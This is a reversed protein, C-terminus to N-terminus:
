RLPDPRPAPAPQEVKYTPNCAPCLDFKVIVEDDDRPYRKDMHVTARCWQKGYVTSEPLAGASKAPASVGCRDCKVEFSRAM